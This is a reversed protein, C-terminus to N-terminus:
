ASAEHGLGGWNGRPRPRATMSAYAPSKRGLREAVQCHRGRRRGAAAGFRHHRHDPRRHHRQPALKIPRGAERNSGVRRRGGRRVPPRTAYRPRTGRGPKGARTSKGPASAPRAGAGLRRVDAGRRAFQGGRAARGGRRYLGRGHAGVPRAGTRDGEPADAPRAAEPMRGPPPDTPHIAHREDGKVRFLKGAPFVGFRNSGATKARITGHRGIWDARPDRRASSGAALAGVVVSIIVAVVAIIRLVAIVGIIVLAVAIVVAMAPDFVAVVAIIVAAHADADAVSARTRRDAPLPPTSIAMADCGASAAM